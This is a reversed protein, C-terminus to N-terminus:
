CCGGIADELWFDTLNIEIAFRLRTKIFRQFSKVVTYCLFAIQLAILLKRFTSRKCDWKKAMQVDSQQNDGIHLIQKPTVHM